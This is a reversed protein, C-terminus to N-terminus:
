QLATKLAAPITHFTCSAVLHGPVVTVQALCPLVPIAPIPVSVPLGAANLQLQGNVVSVQATVSVGEVTVKARGAGLVVPAGVLTDFTAQTMDATVTGTGISVIELQRHETLLHRDIRVGTVTVVVDNLVFAGQSVQSARATIESVQGGAVLRPLWPFGHITVSAGSNPVYGDIRQELQHEMAVRTAIDVAVLVALGVVVLVLLKRV